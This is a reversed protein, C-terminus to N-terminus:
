SSLAQAEHDYVEFVKNLRSLQLVERAFSSLGFLIFRSGLDRSAKLGEVLSAVGSSDIYAVQTLNAVVCPRRGETQSSIIVPLRGGGKRPLVFVSRKHRARFAVDVQQMLFHWEQSSDFHSTDSGIPHVVASEESGAPSALVKGRDTFTSCQSHSGAAKAKGISVRRQAPGMSAQFNSLSAQPASM